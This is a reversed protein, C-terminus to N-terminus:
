PTPSWPGGGDGRGGAGHHRDQGRRAPGHSLGAATKEVPIVYGYEDKSFYATMANKIQEKAEKINM